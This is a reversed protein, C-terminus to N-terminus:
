QNPLDSNCSGTGGGVPTGMASQITIACTITSVTSVLYTSDIVQVTFGYSGATTPIGVIEGTFQNLLLGTPLGGAVLTYIYPGTGGGASLTAYYPFNVAGMILAGTCGLALPGTPGGSGSAGANNFSFWVSTKGSPADLTGISFTTTTIADIGGSAVGDVSIGDNAAGFGTSNTSAHTGQARWCGPSGSAQLDKATTFGPTFPPTVVIDAGTGTVQGSAFAVALKPNAINFALWYFHRGSQNVSNASGVSFSGPTASPNPTPPPTIATILTTISAPAVTRSLEVAQGAPFDAQSKYGINSGRVWVHTPTAPTLFPVNITQSGGNGTYTGVQVADGSPNSIAVWAYTVGNQTCRNGNGDGTGVTFGSSTLTIGGTMLGSNGDLMDWSGTMGTHRYAGGGRNGGTPIVWVACNAGTMDFGTAINAQAGTGVYTGSKINLVSVSPLGGGSNNYPNISCQWEWNGGIAPGSGLNLPALRGSGDAIVRPIDYVAVNPTAMVQAFTPNLIIPAALAASVAQPSQGVTIGQSGYVQGATNIAYLDGAVKQALTAPNYAFGPAYLTNPGFPFPLPTLAM